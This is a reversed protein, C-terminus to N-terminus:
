EDRLRRICAVAEEMSVGGVARARQRARYILDVLVECSVPHEEQVVTITVRERINIGERLEEPLKSAPYHERVIRNM